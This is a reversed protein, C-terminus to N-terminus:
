PASGMKILGRGLAEALAAGDALVPSFAIYLAEENALGANRLPNVRGSAVFHYDLVKEEAILADIRGLELMRVLRPLVRNGKLVVLRSRDNRNAEIYNKSLTGYSYDQIVGLRLKKLSDLGQYEWTTSPLTFFSYRATALPQPPFHFDPTEVLGAGVIGDYEGDRVGIIARTWPMEIYDIEVGDGALAKAAMEVLIGRDEPNDSCNFPCWRDAVLTVTRKEAFTSSSLILFAM